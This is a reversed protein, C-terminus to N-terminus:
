WGRAPGCCWSERPSGPWPAGAARAPPGPESAARVSRRSPAPGHGPPSRPGRRPGPPPGASAFRPRGAGAGSARPSGRDGAGSARGPWRRPRTRRGAPRRQRLMRPSGCPLLGSQSSGCPRRRTAASTSSSRARGASMREVVPVEGGAMAVTMVTPAPQPTHSRQCTPPGSSEGAHRELVDVSVTLRLDVAPDPQEDHAERELHERRHPVRAEGAPPPPENRQGRHEGADHEARDRHASGSPTDPGGSASTPLASCIARSRATRRSARQEGEAPAQLAELGPHAEDEERHRGEDALGEEVAPMGPPRHDGRAPVRQQVLDRRELGREPVELDVAEREAHDEADRLAEERREQPKRGGARRPQSPSPAIARPRTRSDVRKM